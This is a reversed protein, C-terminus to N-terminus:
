FGGRGAFPLGLTLSNFKWLIIEATNPDMDLAFRRVDEILTYKEILCPSRLPPNWVRGNVKGIRSGSDVDVQFCLIGAKAPIVGDFFIPRFIFTNEVQRGM